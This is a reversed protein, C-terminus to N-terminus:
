KAKGFLAKSDCNEFELALIIYTFASTAWTQTPSYVYPVSAQTGVFTGYQAINLSLTINGVGVQCM